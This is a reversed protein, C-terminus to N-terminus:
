PDAFVMPPCVCNILSRHPALSSSRLNLPASGKILNADPSFTLRDAEVESYGIERYVFPHLLLAPPHM